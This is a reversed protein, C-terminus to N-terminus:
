SVHLFFVTFGDKQKLLRRLFFFGVSRSDNALNGFQWAPCGIFGVKGLEFWFDM